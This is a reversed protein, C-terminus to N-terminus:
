HVAIVFMYYKKSYEDKLQFSLLFYLSCRSYVVM